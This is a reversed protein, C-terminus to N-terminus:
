ERTNKNCSIGVQELIFEGKGGSLGGPSKKLDLHIIHCDTGGTIITYGLSMLGAAVTKANAVVQLVDITLHKTDECRM